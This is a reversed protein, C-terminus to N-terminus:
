DSKAIAFRYIIGIIVFQLPLRAYFGWKPINPFKEPNMAMYINAPYVALMLAILGIGAWKRYRPILVGIGGLIEFFGSLYVLERHFPLYPPMIALYFKPSVFHLVGAGIFVIGLIGNGITETKFLKIKM